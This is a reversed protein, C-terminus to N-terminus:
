YLTVSKFPNEAAKCLGFVLTALELRAQENFDSTRGLRLELSSTLLKIAVCDARTIDGGVRKLAISLCAIKEKEEDTPSKPDAVNDKIWKKYLEWRYCNMSTVKGRAWPSTMDADKPDILFAAWGRKWASDLEASQGDNKIFVSHDIVDNYDLLARWVDIRKTDELYYKTFYVQRMMYEQKLKVELTFELALGALRLALMERSLLDKDVSAFSQDAATIIEKVNDLFLAWNDKQVTESPYPFTKSNFIQSDYYDKCFEEITTKTRSSM